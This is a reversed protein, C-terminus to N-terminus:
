PGWTDASLLTASLASLTYQIEGIVMPCDSAFGETVKAADGQKDADALSAWENLIQWEPQSSPFLPHKGSQRLLRSRLLGESEGYTDAYSTNFFDRMEAEREEQIDFRLTSIVPASVAGSRSPRSGAGMSQEPVNICAEQRFVTNSHNSIKGLVEDTLQRDRRRVDIYAERSFVDIDPIEYVNCIFPSGASAHYANCSYFGAGILDPGHRTDYWKVFEDLYAPEVDM